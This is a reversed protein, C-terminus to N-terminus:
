LPQALGGINGGMLLGKQTGNSFSGGSIVLTGTYPLLQNYVVSGITYSASGVASNAFGTLTAIAQVTESATVNIPTGTYPTSSSTPTTGNTTYFISAGATACSPTVSQAGSYAGGPPSFTPTAVQSGTISYLSSGVTSTSYGPATAIYNITKTSSILLPTSYVSSSTTPTSGDLTYYITSGTTSDSLTVTQASGYTGAAPSAVPTNALTPSIAISFTKTSQTPTPTTSDRVTVSVSDTEVNLPLGTLVGTSPAISYTNTGVIVSSSWTYPPIGGTAAITVNYPVSQQGGFLPSASTIQVGAQTGTTAFVLGVSELCFLGFAPELTYPIKGFGLNLGAPM